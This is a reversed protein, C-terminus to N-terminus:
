EKNFLNQELWKVEEELAQTRTEFPGLIPGNIPGMDATWQGNSNPEVHSARKIDLKGIENLDINETYIVNMTGNPLFDLIM